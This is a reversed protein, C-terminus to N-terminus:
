HIRRLGSSLLSQRMMDSPNRWHAPVLKKISPPLRYLLAFYLSLRLFPDFIVVIEDVFASEMPTELSIGGFFYCPGIVAYCALLSFIAPAVLRCGSMVSLRKGHRRQFHHTTTPDKAGIKHSGLWPQTTCRARRRCTKPCRRGSVGQGYIGNPAERVSVSRKASVM